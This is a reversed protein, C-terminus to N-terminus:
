TIDEKEITDQLVKIKFRAQLDENFEIKATPPLGLESLLDKVINDLFSDAKQKESIALSLAARQINTIEVEM